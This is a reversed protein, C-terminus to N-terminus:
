RPGRADARVRRRSTPVVLAQRDLEAGLSHLVDLVLGIVVLYVGIDFFSSTVIKFEGLVPWDWTWIHSELAAGGGLMGGVASFCVIVLGVGLLRGVDVTAAEGLDYPGGAIYRLTLALGVIMGAAFGGGPLNHGVFLVYVSFMVIIPFILRTAVELLLSRGSTGAGPSWNTPLASDQGRRPRRPASGTRRSQFILSAVGTAAAVLVSLEGFTDWGRVDVLIVNVLNEGGGFSVAPGELGASVPTATRIGPIVLALTAMVAGVGVAIVLSVRKGRQGRSAEENASGPPMRTLVLLAVVLSVSEMLMQTLALDPAGRLIYLVSMAYGIGGVVMMAVVARKARLVAPILTLVVLALVLQAPTLPEIPSIQAGSRLLLTGPFIVLVVLVAGLSVPVSGRQTTATTRAAAHEVGRIAARYAIGPQWLPEALGSRVDARRQLLYIGAGIAIGLVSLGLAPTLGHWLALANEHVEGATGAYSAVVPEWLMPLVGLLFGLGVLIWTPATMLVPPREPTSPEVGPKTSFAGWLFRATYAVTLASGTTMVVAATIGWGGGELLGAYGAEKAVFGVMPPIGAMSGAALFAAVALAPMRRGVGSLETLKRTGAQTDIIGVVFFLAGKFTAHAVLMALGALLADATGAGMLLTLLGLQSVTGFALLLKLDRQRLAAVAGFLMTAGGLGILVPKWAPNDAFGPAFRAFLYIGAKVMTAAHLYASAPTPAAMAGPLWFQFPVIASKSIGGVLILVLAATAGPGTPPATIIASISYTGAHEGMMVAGILMVLGGGTTTILAQTAAVRAPRNGVRHAILLYSLVGTLEWAIVLLLLNDALVLVIMAGAFAILSGAYKARGDDGIPFYRASYLLVLTGLLSIVAVMVVSLADFRLDIALSLQPIWRLHVSRVAGDLTGPLLAMAWVTTLAPLVALGILASRDYRRATAPAVMAVLVHTLVIPIAFSELTVAELTM